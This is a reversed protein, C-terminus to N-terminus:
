AAAAAPQNGLNAAHKAAVYGFTFAPGISCGAGPYTHGMVSATTVGTAYLGPIISGDDRLVRAYTDTVVGGYTGVNGPVVTVAYFPGKEVTGLAQNPKHTFDGLWRDYARRGRHFEDDSGKRAFGNFRDTTAKLKAPDVGCAKALGEITDAKKLYGQDFWAQPKASGPMTPGLMHNEIFQSDMIWWSPVAPVTKNRELMRQCFEMYSGGENMYREGSQDVLFAHPKALQMQVGQPGLNPPVTMQNGVMENMQAMAAGIRALEKHMDGTDGEAAHTWEARVNPIYKDLMEQNQAFGGANVLVGSRAGIRWPKGDKVTVVGTVAGNELILEKVPSATRIDVGAKLAAQLMRGQLAAGATVWHKGTLKATFGRWGTKLMIMKAKNSRKFLPLLMADALPAPVQFANPRLKQKWAGLENVDFLDAVVTRGPESGGPRDDYYDPWSAVRGLKIGQSVLFDIMEPAERIYAQRREKTAGPADDFDGVTNDLYTTAKEHSDDVGQAKMFRNNPIWMVGGAKATSGGVYDTKELILVSKGAKRMVLGACMSGGGSGVVVFDFVENMDQM